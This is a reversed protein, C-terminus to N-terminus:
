NILELKTKLEALGSTLFREISKGAGALRRRNTAYPSGKLAFVFRDPAEDDESRQLDAGPKRIGVGEEAGPGKPYFVERWRENIWGGVGM